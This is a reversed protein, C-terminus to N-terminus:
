SCLELYRHIPRFGTLFRGLILDVFCRADSKSIDPLMWWAEFKFVVETVRDLAEIPMTLWDSLSPISRQEEENNERESPVFEACAYSIWLTSQRLCPECYKDTFLKSVLMLSPYFMGDLHVDYVELNSPATFKIDNKPNDMLEEYVMLRLEKPLDLFRFPPEPTADAEAAALRSQSRTKM